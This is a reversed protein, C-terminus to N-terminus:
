LESDASYNITDIYEPLGALDEQFSMIIKDAEDSEKKSEEIIPRLTSDSGILPIEEVLDLLLFRFVREQRGTDEDLMSKWYDIKSRPLNEHGRPHLRLYYCYWFWFTECVEYALNYKPNDQSLITDVIHEFISLKRAMEPFEDKPFENCTENFTSILSSNDFKVDSYQADKLINKIRKFSEQFKFPARSYVLAIADEMAQSDSYKETLEEVKKEIIDFQPNTAMNIKPIGKWDVLTRDEMEHDWVVYTPMCSRVVEDGYRYWCHPLQIDIRQNCLETYLITMIKNFYLGSPLSGKLDKYKSIVLFSAINLLDNSNRSYDRFSM